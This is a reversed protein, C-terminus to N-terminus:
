RLGSTYKKLIRARLEDESPGTPPAAVAASAGQSAFGSPAFGPSAPARAANAASPPPTPPADGTRPGQLHQQVYRAYDVLRPDQSRLAERLVDAAYEFDHMFQHVDLQRGFERRMPTVMRVLYNMLPNPGGLSMAM